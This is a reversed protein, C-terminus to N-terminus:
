PRRPPGPYDPNRWAQLRDDLDFCSASVGFDLTEWRIVFGRLFEAFGDQREYAPDNAAGLQDQPYVAPQASV